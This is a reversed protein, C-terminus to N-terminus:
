QLAQPLSRSTANEHLPRASERAVARAGGRNSPELSALCWAADQPRDRVRGAFEEAAASSSTAQTSPSLKGPRRGRTRTTRRDDACERRSESARPSGCSGRTDRGATGHEEWRWQPLPAQAPRSRGRSWSSSVKPGEPGESGRGECRGCPGTRIRTDARRIKRYTRRQYPDPSPVWSTSM